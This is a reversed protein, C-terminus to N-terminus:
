CKSSGCSLCIVCGSEYTLKTGCNDCTQKTLKGDTIYRKLIRAISKGFSSLDGKAKNLQEVAFMVDGGHRLGYSFARTIIEQEDTLDDSINERINGQVFYYEGGKQKVISGKGSIGNGKYAFIEYPRNDM